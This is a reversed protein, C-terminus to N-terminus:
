GQFDRKIDNKENYMKIILNTILEIKAFRANICECIESIQLNQM